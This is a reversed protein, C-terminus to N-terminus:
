KLQSPATALASALKKAWARVTHESLNAAEAVRRQSLPIEQTRAAVYLAAGAISAPKSGSFIFGDTRLRALMDRATAVVRYELQLRDALAELLDEPKSFAPRLNLERRIARSAHSLRKISVGAAAAVDEYSRLIGQRRCALLVAAAVVPTIGYGRQLRRAPMVRRLIEAADELASKPLELRSGIGRMEQLAEALRRRGQMRTREQVTRLRLFAGSVDCQLDRRAITSGMGLDHLLRTLPPGTRTRTEWQEQSFARTDRGLDLMEGLVLGCATCVHEGSEEAISENGCEPCSSAALM